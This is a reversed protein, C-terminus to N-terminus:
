RLYIGLTRLCAPCVLRQGSYEMGLRKMKEVLTTRNMKLLAAARSKVNASRSLARKIIKTEIENITASLDLGSETIEYMFSLVSGHQRGISDPLDAVNVSDTETLAVLREVANELERVNGPWDYLEM